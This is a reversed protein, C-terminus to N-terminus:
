ALPTNKTNRLHVLHEVHFMRYLPVIMDPCKCPTARWYTVGSTREM